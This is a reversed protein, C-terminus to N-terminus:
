LLIFNFLKPMGTNHATTTSILTEKNYISVTVIGTYSAHEYHKNNIIKKM